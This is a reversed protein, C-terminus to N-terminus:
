AGGVVVWAAEWWRGCRRCGNGGALGALRGTWLDACRRLEADRRKGGVKIPQRGAGLPVRLVCACGRGAREKGGGVIVVLNKARWGRAVVWL